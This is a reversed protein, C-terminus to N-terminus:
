RDRQTVGPLVQGRIRGAGGFEAVGQCRLHVRCCEAAQQLLDPLVLVGLNGMAPLSAQVKKFERLQSFRERSRIEDGQQRRRILDPSRLLMICPAFTLDKAIPRFVNPANLFRTALRGGIPPLVIPSAQRYESYSRSAFAARPGRRPRSVGAAPEM